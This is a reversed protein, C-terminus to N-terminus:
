NFISFIRLLIGGTWLLFEGVRRFLLGAGTVVAFLAFLMCLTPFLGSGYDRVMVYCSRLSGAALGFLAVAALLRWLEFQGQKPKM